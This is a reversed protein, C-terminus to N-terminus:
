IDEEWPWPSNTWNYKETEANLKISGYKKEYEDVYMNLKKISKKFEDYIDQDNPHIDLYLNLDNIIFSEKMIKFKLKGEETSPKFNYIKYNKYPIYEDKFMNGYLYGDENLNIKKGVFFDLNDDFSFDDFYM